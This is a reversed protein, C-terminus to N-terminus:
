FLARIQEESLPDYAKMARVRKEEEAERARERPTAKVHFSHDVNYVVLANPIYVSHQPALELVGFMVRLDSVLGAYTGSEERFDEDRMAQVLGARFTKLHSARWPERRPQRGVPGAHRPSFGPAGDPLIFSGYTVLDSEHARAVVALAHPVALWDDGDLWVIVEDPPLERWLPLLNALHPTTDDTVAHLSGRVGADAASNWSATDLCWVHHSWDTHSQDRVSRICRAISHPANKVTSTITLHM